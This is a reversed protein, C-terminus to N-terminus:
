GGHEAPKESETSSEDSAGRTEREVAEAAAYMAAEHQQRMEEQVEAVMDQALESVEAVGERAKEYATAGVRFASRLVPRVVPALTTIAVPVLLAIGVGILVGTALKKDILDQPQPM